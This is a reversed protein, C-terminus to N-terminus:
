FSANSEPLRVGVTSTSRRMQVFSALDGALCIAVDGIDAPKAEEPLLTHDIEAQISEESHYEQVATKVFSPHICNMNVADAGLEVALDRTLNISPRRRAPTPPTRVVMARTYRVSTSSTDQRRKLEPIAPKAAFFSDGLDVDIVTEWDEPSTEQSDGSVYTGANNVLYTPLSQDLVQNLYNRSSRMFDATRFM